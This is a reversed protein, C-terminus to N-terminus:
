RSGCSHEISQASTQAVFLCLFCLHNGSTKHKKHRKTIQGPLYCYNSCADDTARSQSFSLNGVREIYIEETDGPLEDERPVYYGTIYWGDSCSSKGGTEQSFDDYWGYLHPALLLGVCILAVTLQLRRNFFPRLYKMGAHKELDYKM